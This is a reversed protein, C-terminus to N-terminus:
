NGAYYSLMFNEILQILWEIYCYIHFSVLSFTYVTFRRNVKFYELPAINVM